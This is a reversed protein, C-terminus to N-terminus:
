QDPYLACASPPPLMIVSNMAPRPAARTTMIMPIPNARELSTVSKISKAYSGLLTGRRPQPVREVPATIPAIGAKRVPKERWLVLSKGRLANGGDRIGIRSLCQHVMAVCGVESLM